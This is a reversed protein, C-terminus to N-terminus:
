LNYEQKLTQLMINNEMGKQRGERKFMYDYYYLVKPIKEQKRIQDRVQVAWETDEGFSIDLYQYQSALKKSFCMIHNPNRYYYQEDELKDGSYAVDYKCIKKVIGGLSVEVDFTICDADPTQRIASLLSDVYDPTVRDDDDVFVVFDGKAQQILVNRKTGISRKKNDIFVLIEVPFRESQRQLESVVRSLCSAREPISPILISLIIDM